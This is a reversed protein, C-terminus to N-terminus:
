DRPPPGFLISTPPAEGESWAVWGDYSRLLQATPLGTLDGLVRVFAKVAPEDVEGQAAQKGLRGIDGLIRGVPPGQYGHPGFAAMVDRAVVVMGLLYEAQWKILKATWDELDDDEGGGKLAHLLLAPLLAPLVTLLAMDALWGAVAVPNKFETAATKQAVLNVTTSFYSYFQTLFPHDRQIMALDKTQGGGQSSLVAEDALAVATAEDQGDALAQEYRGIWTPLDAILQLKQTLAFAMGDYIRAVKNKGRVQQSIESLERNFTQARLRMFDSKDGVWAVTSELKAADGAWRQAGRLVAATGVRAISQTLGFPQLLGTTLSFGMVARTINSRAMFMLHDAASQHTADGVAIANVNDRMTRLTESGHHDRIAKTIRSDNLLRNADIFWEHWALDHVVQTVHQTLVNLDLRVPRGVVKQVRAKTHGRRTTPRVWAGRLIDEALEAAQQKGARDSREPNFAIPYYGGRMQVKTGDSAEVEFPVAEVKEEVVGSVREQKAKVAPWFSDIYEWVANVFALETPSLTKLIAEVQAKTWPPADTGQDMVRQQNQPNGWNLAVALRAGRTLSTGIEPIVVKSKGGTVGGPLALIPKYLTALAQTAKAIESAEYAGADNMSRIFARFFPGNDAGDMQRVLSNLKRHDAWFGKLKQVLFGEPEMQVPRAKGGNEVITAAIDDAIADFARKDAAKLLRNKLRGLHEINKITDVLGAFEEVTLEKYSTLRAKELVGPPLIPDMGLAQQDKVWEELSARKEITKAGTGKRLEIKELLADIQDLYSAPLGKRVSDKEFKRLYALEREIAREARTAFIAAYHNLMQDRKAAVADAAKSEAQAKAAKAAARAAAAQYSSARLELIRRQNVITEAFSKAAQVLVNVNTKRGPAPATESLADQLAKLETAVFRGRAENHVAEDAAKRVGEPTVLDGYTELLRQETMAEILDKATPSELLDRRLHDVSTYGLEDALADMEAFAPMGAPRPHTKEWEIAAAEAQNAITKRSKALFQGKKIGKLDANEPQALLALKIENAAREVEAARAAKWEKQAELTEPTSAQAAAIRARAKEVPLAMVEATAQERMAKRKEDVEAQAARLAKSHAAAAWKMDAISRAQLKVLAADTSARGKAQYDAWQEPTMGAEKASKFIAEFNARQEAAAIQEETALLRDFISRVEDNLKANPRGAVFQKISRYVGLLFQKFSQFAPRLELSPATGDLLYREFTEAWKEHYPRQEDLSMERWTQLPTRTDISGRVEQLAQALTKAPVDRLSPLSTHLARAAPGVARGQRIADNIAQLEEPSYVRNPTAKKLVDVPDVLAPQESGKIGFWKLTANMEDVIQQPADLTSAVRSMVELFFHGTEHLFTSLNADALLSITLTSPNFTGLPDTGQKYIRADERSFTGENFDASKVNVPDFVVVVTSPEGAYASDGGGDDVVEWIITGDTSGDGKRERRAARVVDDTTGWMPDAPRFTYGKNARKMRQAETKTFVSEGDPGYVLEGDADFVSWQDFREGDWNAGEFNEATPHRLNVFAAYILSRSDPTGPGLVDDVFSTGLASVAEEFTTPVPGRGFVSNPADEHYQIAAALVDQRERDSLVPLLDRKEARRARGRRAYTKALAFNDSLWIGLDNRVEGGTERFADFGGTDTGHYVVLPEGTDPDVVQSAHAPDNEWDGFWAKFEPTRVQAYQAPTLKSPKGNPALLDTAPLDNFSHDTNSQKFGDSARSGDLMLFYDPNFDGWKEKEPGHMEGKTGVLQPIAEQHLARSLADVEGGTLPQSLQAVLTNETDSRHVASATVQVGFAEIAAKVEEPTLNSDRLDPRVDLGVNLYAPGAPRQELTAPKGEARLRELRAAAANVLRAQDEDAFPGAQESARAAEVGSVPSDLADVQAGYGAARLIAEYKADHFLGKFDPTSAIMEHTLEENYLIDGASLEATQAEYLTKTWSWVTEQVNAPTWEEGTMETLMRAAERVKASMALYGSRKGPGKKTLRGAFLEQDIFAFNAMWADNTVEEVNGLLNRMFSDVKPGSLTTGDETLARVSNNIWAELVSGVGRDGEVSAGMIEVITKRDTPRGAALWNAWTNLANHLNTEVSNQPSMAALLAAFRPADPGFVQAIAKASERYWGKKARGAWAAAALEKAPPLKKFLDVLKTATDIRLTEREAPTLLKEIRAFGAVKRVDAYQNFVENDDTQPAGEEVVWQPLLGIKQPAYQTEAPGATRNFDAYPGFNVWSNQGRTETTMARRALPSYMSSHLRWANEEGDARFGVGEAVHGFYDHVIRFIDNVQVPRGSITEGPVIELLPNGSIDVDQSETGGFGESTPFVWLHNNRVVDLIANRPNGYPDKGTIFEVKLGTGKIFQWQALTEEIMAAYAAKTEPDEPDHKMEEFAQAIRAARAKDVTVYTAVPVFPLGASAVYAAAAARAPVFPGFAVPKGDVMVESPLGILPAPQSYDPAETAAAFAAALESRYATRQQDGDFVGAVSLERHVDPLAASLLEQWRAITPSGAPLGQAATLKDLVIDRGRSERAAPQGVQRGTTKSMPGLVKVPVNRPGLMIVQASQTGSMRDLYGDFGRDLVASEFAQQDKGRLRLPDSNADYINNLTAKRAIGGVGEEPNIGTGKDVYFYIRNRLRRDKANLFEERGSGKLGMGFNAGSLTTRETKGYNFAEIDDLQGPKRAAATLLGGADVTSVIPPKFKTFAEEPTIGLKGGLVTFFAEYLQAYRENVQANFRKTAALADLVQQKVNAASDIVKQADESQKIVEEARAQWFTKQEEDMVTSEARTMATPDLRVNDIFSPELASGPVNALVEGIPLEVTGDTALAEQMQPGASPLLQNFVEQSINATAAMDVLAQADVFVSKVAGDSAGAMTQILEKFTEPDNTRLTSEKSRTFLDDLHEASAKAKDTLGSIRGAEAILGKAAGTAGVQATGGILTAIITQGIAEPQELVWDGFSKAANGGQAVWENFNQWLTTGSEGVMERTMEYVALKTLSSGALARQMFGAFGLYKEGVFEAVADGVGHTLATLKGAGKDLTETYSVGGQIASMAVLAAGITPAAPAGLAIAAGTGLMLPVNMAASQVGSELGGGFFRGQWTDGWQSALKRRSKEADSAIMGAGEAVRAFPNGGPLLDLPGPFLTAVDSAARLTGAAGQKALYWAGHAMDPLNAEPNAGMVFALGKGLAKEIGALVGSDTSSLKAFDEDTYRQRLIPTDQTNKVVTEVAALRKAEDPMAPGAAPPLGATKANKRQEAFQAPDTGVSLTVSARMAPDQEEQRRIVEDYGGARARTEEGVLPLIVSDYPNSAPPM